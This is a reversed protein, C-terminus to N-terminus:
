KSPELFDGFGVHATSAQGTDGVTVVHVGAVGRGVAFRVPILFVHKKARDGLWERAKRRNQLSDVVSLQWTSWVAHPIPWELSGPFQPHERAEELDARELFATTYTGRTNDDWLVEVIDGGHDPCPKVVTGFMARSLEQRLGFSTRSTLRTGPLRGYASLRVRTGSEHLAEDRERRPQPQDRPFPPQDAIGIQHLWDIVGDIERLSLSLDGNTQAEILDQIDELALGDVYANWVWARVEGRIFQPSTPKM